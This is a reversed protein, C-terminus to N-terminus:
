DDAAEQMLKALEKRAQQLKESHVGELPYQISFVLSLLANTHELHRSVDNGGARRQEAILEDRLRVVAHTLALCVPQASAPCEEVVRDIAALTDQGSQQASDNLKTGAM